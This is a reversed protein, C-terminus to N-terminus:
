LSQPSNVRPSRGAHEGQETNSIDVPHDASQVPLPKSQKGNIMQNPPILVGGSVAFKMADEITIPLDVTDSRPVTVVYGTFPTPSSPVFITLCEQGAATQIDLMTEGTVLGVSWVGKRPYEVAVVRNFNFKDKEDGVFFDTVQKVAPYVRRILPLRHLLEEGRHYLRRGIYSGLIFGVVYILVIALVLGILDLLVSYSTWWRSLKARRTDMRLWDRSQETARYAERKGADAMVVQEHDALMQETVMPWPTGYLVLERVGYNIPQAIRSSVFQYAALLIWITLVTPLLIALGRVFFQRFRFKDRPTHTQRPGDMSSGLDKGAGARCSSHPSDGSCIPRSM